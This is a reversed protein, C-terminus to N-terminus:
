RAAGAPAPRRSSWRALLYALISCCAGILVAMALATQGKDDQFHGVAVTAIGGGAMQLFGMLGSSAGAIRPMVSVAGAIGNPQSMGNGLAVVAFPLFIASASVVGALAFAVLLSGGILSMTCGLAIMREIGLRESLRTATFNGAMYAISITAFYFGYVEPGLGLIQITVYPAGALFAFFCGVSSATNLTYGLYAPSKLLTGYNRALSALDIRETRNHNTESLAVVAYALVAFGAASVALFGAQWGFGTHLFGGIAPAVMPALAMAMTILAIVSAARNRDFVDRVIARGLVMGACGGLAQFVRGVILADITPAFASALSALAFVALGALMLPRRGFRDSLPGYALQGVAVGALYLTLTLQVTAYDTGFYGVLGPMSPVFLNLALPGTATAAILILIPPGKRDETVPSDLM